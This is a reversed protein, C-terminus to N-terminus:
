RCWFNSPLAIHKIMKVIQIDPFHTKPCKINNQSRRYYPDTNKNKTTSNYQLCWTVKCSVMQWVVAFSFFSDYLLCNEHGCKKVTAILVIELRRKKKFFLFVPLTNFNGKKLSVATDPLYRRTRKGKESKGYNRDILFLM